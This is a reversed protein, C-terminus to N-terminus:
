RYEYGWKVILLTMWVEGEQPKLILTSGLLQLWWVFLKKTAMIYQLKFLHVGSLGVRRLPSIYLQRAMRAVGPQSLLNGITAVMLPTQGWTEYCCWTRTGPSGQHRPFGRSNLDGGKELAKKVEYVKGHLCMENLAQHESVLKSFRKKIRKLM